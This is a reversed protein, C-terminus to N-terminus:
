AIYGVIDNRPRRHENRLLKEILLRNFLLPAPVGIERWLGPADFASLRASKSRFDQSSSGRLRGPHSHVRFCHRRCRKWTMTLCPDGHPHRVACVDGHRVKRESTTSNGFLPPIRKAVVPIRNTDGDITYEGGAKARNSTSVTRGNAPRLPFRALRNATKFRNSSVSRCCGQRAM